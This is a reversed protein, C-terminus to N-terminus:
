FFGFLDDTTDLFEGLGWFATKVAGFGISVCVESIGIVFLLNDVYIDKM